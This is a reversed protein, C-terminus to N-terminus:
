TQTWNLEIEAYRAVDLVAADGKDFTAVLYPTPAINDYISAREAMQLYRPLNALGRRFRRHVVEDPVHHGGDAVRLAIRHISIKPDGIWLYVFGLRWGEAIARTALRQQYRGSLTTEIAFSARSGIHAEIAKIALTGARRAAGDVDGPDIDRAMDDVNIFPAGSTIVPVFRRAFTTKGSGNPGAIIWLWPNEGSEAM